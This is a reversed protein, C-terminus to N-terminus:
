SQGQKSLEIANKISHYVRDTGPYEGKVEAGDSLSDPMLVFTMGLMKKVFRKLVEMKSVPLVFLLGQILVRKLCRRLFRSIRQIKQMIHM